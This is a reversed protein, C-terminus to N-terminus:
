PATSFIRIRLVPIANFVMPRIVDFVAEDHGSHLEGGGFSGGTAPGWAADALEDPLHSPTDL